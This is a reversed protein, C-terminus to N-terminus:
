TMYNSVYMGVNCLFTSGGCPRDQPKLCYIDIFTPTERGFSVPWMGCSEVTLAFLLQLSQAKVRTKNIGTV